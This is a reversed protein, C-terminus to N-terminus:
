PIAIVRPALPGLVPVLYPATIVMGFALAALLGNAVYAPDSDGEGSTIPILEMGYGPTNIIPPIYLYNWELDYDPINIPPIYLHTVPPYDCVVDDCVIDIWKLEFPSEWKHPAPDDGKKPHRYPIFPLPPNLFPDYPEDTDPPEEEDNGDTYPPSPRVDDNDIIDDDIYNPNEEDDLNIDKLNRRTGERIKKVPDSATEPHNPGEGDPRERRLEEDTMPPTPKHYPVDDPWGDPKGDEHPVYPPPDNSIKIATIQPM